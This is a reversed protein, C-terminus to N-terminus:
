LSVSFVSINVALGDDCIHVGLYQLAYPVSHHWSVSPFHFNGNLLPIPYGAPWGYRAFGFMYTCSVWLLLFVICSLGVTLFMM